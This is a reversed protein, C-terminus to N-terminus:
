LSFNLDRRAMALIANLVAFIMDVKCKVEWILCMHSKGM